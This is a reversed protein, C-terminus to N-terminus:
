EDSLWQLMYQRVGIIPLGLEFMHLMCVTAILLLYCSGYYLQGEFPVLLNHAFHIGESTICCVHILLLAM